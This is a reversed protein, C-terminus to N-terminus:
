HMYIQGIMTVGSANDIYIYRDDTVYKLLETIQRDAIQETTSVRAYGFSISM